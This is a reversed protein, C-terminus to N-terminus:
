THVRKRCAVKRSRHRPMSACLICGLLKSRNCRNRGLIPGVQLSAVLREGLGTWGLSTNLDQGRNEARTTISRRCESTISLNNKNIRWFIIYNVIQSITGVPV